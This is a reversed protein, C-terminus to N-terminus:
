AYVVRAGHSKISTQGTPSRTTTCHRLTAVSSSPQTFLRVYMTIESLLYRFCLECELCNQCLVIENAFTLRGSRERVFVM